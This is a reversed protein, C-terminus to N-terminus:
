DLTRAEDIVDCLFTKFDELPRTTEGFMECFRITGRKFDDLPAAGTIAQMVDRTEPTRRAGSLVRLLDRLDWIVRGRLMRYRDELPTARDLRALWKWGSFYAEQRVDDRDLGYPKFSDVLSSDKMIVNVTTLLRTLEDSSLQRFLYKKM